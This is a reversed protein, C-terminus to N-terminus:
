IISSNRGAMAGLSTPTLSRSAWNQWDICSRRGRSRRTFFCRRRIIMGIETIAWEWFPFPNPTPIISAFSGCARSAGTVRLHEEIGAVSEALRGVRFRLSLHGSIKQSSERRISHHQSPRAQFWNPHEHHRVSSRALMQFAIDAGGSRHRYRWRRFWCGPFIRWRAWSHSSDGQARRAPSGIAWPSGPETPGTVLANNKGKRFANVPHIPPLYLVDFGMGAIYPLRLYVCDRFTGHAGPESSTSRPFMEYWASFRAKECDVVVPLVHHRTALTRDPYRDMLAALQDAETAVARTAQRALHLTQCCRAAARRRGPCNRLREPRSPRPRSALVSRTKSRQM